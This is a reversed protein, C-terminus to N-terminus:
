GRIVAETEGLTLTSGELVNTSHVYEVLVEERIRKVLDQHLPRHREVRNKKELIRRHIRGNIAAVKFGM